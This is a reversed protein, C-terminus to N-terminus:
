YEISLMILIGNLCNFTTPLLRNERDKPSTFVADMKVLTGPDCSLVASIEPDFPLRGLALISARVEESSLYNLQLYSFLFLVSSSSKEALLAPM